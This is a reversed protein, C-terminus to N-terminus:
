SLVPEFPARIGVVNPDLPQIGTFRESPINLTRGVYHERRPMPKDHQLANYLATRYDRENAAALWAYHYIWIDEVLRKGHAHMPIEHVRQDAPYRVGENLKWARWQGDPSWAPNYHLRDGIFHYRNFGLLDDSGSEFIARIRRCDAPFMLEDPDIRLMHTYGQTECVSTLFNGQAAFDNAFLHWVCDQETFGQLLEHVPPNSDDGCVMVVGDFTNSSLYVPLHLRLFPLDANMYM